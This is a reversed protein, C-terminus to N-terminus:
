DLVVFRSRVQQKVYTRTIDLQGEGEASGHTKGHTSLWRQGRAFYADFEGETMRGAFHTDRRLPMLRCLVEGKAIEVRDRSADLELVVHWPYSAPYWDTEVVASMARWGREHMPPANPPDAFMVVENPDSALFLFSSLKVQHKVLEFVDDTIVHPLTQGKEWFWAYRQVLPRGPADPDASWDFDSALERDPEARWTGDKQRVFAVDFNALIDFGWANAARIPPCEEPWGRGAARKQYVDRAPVLPHLEDRFKYFRLVGSGVTGADPGM